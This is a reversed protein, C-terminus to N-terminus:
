ILLKVMGERWIRESHHKQRAMHRFVIFGISWPSFGRFSHALIFGEEKLNNKESLKTM